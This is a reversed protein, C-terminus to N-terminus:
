DEWMTPKFGLEICKQRALMKVDEPISTCEQVAKYVGAKMVRENTPMPAGYKKAFRRVAKWDDRMIAAIFTEDRDKVFAEIEDMM